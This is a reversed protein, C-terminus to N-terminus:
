ITNTADVIVTGIQGFGTVSIPAVKPKTSSAGTNSASVYVISGIVSPVAPRAYPNGPTTWAADHYIYVGDIPGTTSYAQETAWYLEIEDGAEVEFTVESYATVFSPVGASKRAPISFITASNSVDVFGSGTDKKLWFTADHIANDTNVLQASYTIKYVGAIDATASGPANLTWGFGSDLTDWAVVTPTDNATAYQDTSDSAAIHPMVINSGVGNFTGGYFATGMFSGGVLNGGLFGKSRVFESMMSAVNSYTATLTSTAVNEATM